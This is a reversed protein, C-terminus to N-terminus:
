GALRGNNKQNSIQASLQIEESIDKILFLLVSSQEKQLYLKHSSVEWHVKEKGQGGELIFSDGSEKFDSEKFAPPFSKFLNQNLLNLPRTQFLKQFAHNSHLIKFQPDTICFAQPFSDFTDQWQKKINALQEKASIFYLASAIFSSIKKLFSQQSKSIKKSSYFVAYGYDNGKFILPSQFQFPWVSPEKIKVFEKNLWDLPTLLDLEQVACLNLFSNERLRLLDEPQYLQYSTLLAQYLQDRKQRGQESAQRKIKKAPM